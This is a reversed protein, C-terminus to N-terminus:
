NLKAALNKLSESVLSASRREDMKAAILKEAASAAADAALARIEAMAHAEAQAIKEQAQKGRREIQATLNARAEAAFREAEAKAETLISQAETEANAAKRKYEALVAEAEDRLRKAEDLEQAIAASRQDLRGGIFAPVRRYLLVGIIIVFGLGVWTEPEKLFEM